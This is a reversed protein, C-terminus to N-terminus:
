PAAAAHGLVWWAQEPAAPEAVHVHVALGTHEVVLLVHALVDVRAVQAFSACPHKKSDPVLAHELPAHLPPAHQVFAHELPCVSHTLPCIAVHASPPM